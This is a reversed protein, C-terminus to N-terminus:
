KNEGTEQWKAAHPFKPEVQYSIASANLIAIVEKVTVAKGVFLRTPANEIMKKAQLFNIGAIGAIAKISEKSPVNDSCLIVTYDTTDEKIPEIFTTAWGWGCKPCKMGVPKYQDISLMEAGCKECIIRGNM